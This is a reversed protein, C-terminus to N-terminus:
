SHSGRRAPLSDVKMHNMQCLVTITLSHLPRMAGIEIDLYHGKQRSVCIFRNFVFKPVADLSSPCPLPSREDHVFKAPHLGVIVIAEVPFVNQKSFITRLFIAFFDSDSM